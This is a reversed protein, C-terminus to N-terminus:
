SEAGQLLSRFIYSLACGKGMQEITLNLIEVNDLTTVDLEGYEMELQFTDLPIQLPFRRRFEEAEEETDFTITMDLPFTLTVPDNRPPQPPSQLARRMALMKIGRSLTTKELSAVAPVFKEDQGIYEVGHCITLESSDSRIIKAIM